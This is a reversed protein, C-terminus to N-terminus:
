KILVMKKTISLPTSADDIFLRYFYVGSAYRSGDWSVKYSGPKLGEQGGGLPPILSAIERGLIDYIVLRVNNWVGGKSPVPLSFKIRTVPNFPNPYNQSLSPSSPIKNSLNEKTTLGGNITKIISGGNGVAWGVTDNIFFVSNLTVSVPTSTNSWSNGFDTTKYIFGETACAWGTKVSIFNLDTLTHGELVTQSWNNGGNYSKYVAGGSKAIVYGTDLSPFFVDLCSVTNIGGLETYQIIWSGGGNITKAITAQHQTPVPMGIPQITCVWGTQSNVFFAATTIWPPTAATEGWNDGRNTTKALAFPECGYLTNDDALTWHHLTGYFNAVQYWNLGSNTTKFVPNGLTLGTNMDFFRIGTLSGSYPGPLVVWNSGGNTTKLLVGNECSAYGIDQSIFFVDNINQTTNSNQIFWSQSYANITFLALYTIIITKM